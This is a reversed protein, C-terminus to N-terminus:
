ADGREIYFRNNPLDYICDYQDDFHAIQKDYASSCGEFKQVQKLFEKQRQRFSDKCDVILDKNIWASNEISSIIDFILTYCDNMKEKVPSLDLTQPKRASVILENLEELNSGDYQVYLKIELLAINRIAINCIDIMDSAFELKSDELKRQLESIMTSTLNNDSFAKKLEDLKYDDFAHRYELQIKLVDYKFDSLKQIDERQINKKSVYEQLMLFIAEINGRNQRHHIKILENVREQLISLQSNIGSLYYQGTCISALQFILIPAFIQASSVTQFGAHEAIKGNVKVISSVTGNSYQMLQAPNITARFVGGGVASAVTGTQIGAGLLQSSLTKSFNTEPIQVYKKALDHPLNAHEFKLVDHNDHDVLKMEDIKTVAIKKRRLCNLFGLFSM